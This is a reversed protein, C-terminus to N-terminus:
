WFFLAHLLFTAMNPYPSSGTDHIPELPERVSNIAQQIETIGPLPEENGSSLAMNLSTSFPMIINMSQRYDQYYHIGNLEVETESEEVSVCDM